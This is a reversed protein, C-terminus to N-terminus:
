VEEEEEEIEMELKFDFEETPSGDENDPTSDVAAQERAQRRLSMERELKEALRPYEQLAKELAARSLAFLESHSGSGGVVDANRPENSLLAMEGFWSGPGLVAVVDKGGNILVEVEGEVVFFMEKGEEGTTIIQEDPAFSRPELAAGVVEVFREDAIEAFIPVQALREKAAKLNAAGTSLYHNSAAGLSKALADERFPMSKNIAPLLEDKFWAEIAGPSNLESRRVVERRVALLFEVFEVRTMEARLNAKEVNPQSSAYGTVDEWLGALRRPPLSATLLGSKELMRTLQNFQLTDDRLKSGRASRFKEYLEHSSGHAIYGPDTSSGDTNPGFFAFIKDLQARAGRVLEETDPLITDWRHPKNNDHACSYPLICDTLLRQFQTLISYADASRMRDMRNSMAARTQGDGALSPRPLGYKTAALRVLLELFGYVHIRRRPNHVSGMAEFEESEATSNPDLQVGAESWRMHGCSDQGREEHGEAAVPTRVPRSCLAFLRGCDATRCETSLVRCDILLERFQGLSLAEAPRGILYEDMDAPLVHKVGDGFIRATAGFAVANADELHKARSPRVQAFTQHQATPGLRCYYRFTSILMPVSRRLQERIALLQGRSTALDAVREVVVDYHWPDKLKKTPEDWDVRADELGELRKRRATPMWFPRERQVDGISDRYEGSLKVDTPRRAAAKRLSHASPVIAGPQDSASWGGAQNLTHARQTKALVRYATSDSLQEVALRELDEIAKGSKGMNNLVSARLLLMTKYSPPRCAKPLAKEPAAPPLQGPTDTHELVPMERPSVMEATVAEARAVRAMHMLGSSKTKTLESSVAGKRVDLLRQTGHHDVVAVASQTACAAAEANKFVVLAWSKADGPKERVVVSRIQGCPHFARILTEQDACEAPIRGVWCTCEPALQSGGGAQAALTATIQHLAQNLETDTASKGRTLVDRTGRVNDWQAEPSIDADWDRSVFKQAGLQRNGGSIPARQSAPSAGPPPQPQRERVSVGGIAVRRSRPSGTSSAGGLRPTRLVGAASNTPPVPRPSLSLLLEHAKEEAKAPAARRRRAGMGKYDPRISANGLPHVPPRIPM